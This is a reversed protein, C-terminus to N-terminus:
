VLGGDDAQGRDPMEGTPNNRTEVKVLFCMLEVERLPLRPTISRYRLDTLM